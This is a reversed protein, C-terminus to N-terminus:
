GPGAPDGGPPSEMPLRELTRRIAGRPGDWRVVDRAVGGERRGVWVVPPAGELGGALPTGAPALGWRDPWFAGFRSAGRDGLRVRLGPGASRGPDALASSARWVIAGGSGVLVTRGRAEVRVGDMGGLGGGWPRLLRPVVTGALRRASAEDGAHLALLGGVPRGGEDTEVFGSVGRLAPWLEVEPRVGAANALLNLRARIPAAGARGADAKEWGDLAEFAADVTARDLALAFAAAVGEGPVVDLWGAEIAPGDGGGGVRSEVEARLEEGALGARVEVSAIGLGGLVGAARRGASGSARGLAAGDVRALWGSEIGPGPRDAGGLRGLGWALAGRDPGIAVAGGASRALLASGPGGLRDVAVGEGLPEEAAGDTLALATALAELTGDDRPVVVCWRWAGDGGDGALLRTGDFTALERVMGPNLAAIAAQWTRDLVDERGTAQRWAALAAAPSPARSGEFLALVAQLQRDPRVMEVEVAPVPEEARASGPGALVIVGWVLASRRM